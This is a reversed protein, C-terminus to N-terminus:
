PAKKTLFNLYGLLFWWIGFFSYNVMSDEFVHLFMGMTLLAICGVIFAKNYFFFTLNKTYIANQVRKIKKGIYAVIIIWFAFWLVWIDLLLQVFYNEPLLTWNHHVAPWSSGLGYWLPNRLVYSLSSFKAAIHAITSSWKLISLWCIWAILIIGFWISRKWHKKRRDINRLAFVIVMWILASRSLTLFLSVIWIAIIIISVINKKSTFINKISDFRSWFYALIMPLFAVLFFGYNNAGSFIGQLRLTGGLGTLYYIPPKAGFYFDNLPWYGFAFFLNPWLLKAWQWLLWIGVCAVLIWVIRKLFRWMREAKDQEKNIKKYGFIYWLFSATLFILLYQFWYKFGVFMDYISKDKLWSIIISFLVLGIFSIWINKWQKWYSKINNINWIAIIGFFMMWLSDRILSPIQPYNGDFIGFGLGTVLIHYLLTILIFIRLFIIM